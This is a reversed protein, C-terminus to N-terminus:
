AIAFVPPRPGESIRAAEYTREQTMLAWLIRGNKAPWFAVATKQWGSHQRLAMVWQSIPDLNHKGTLM